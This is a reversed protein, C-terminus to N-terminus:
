RFSKRLYDLCFKVDPHDWTYSKYHYGCSITSRDEPRGSRLWTDPNPDLHVRELDLVGNDLVFIKGNMNMHKLFFRDYFKESAEKMIANKYSSTKLGRIISLCAEQKKAM